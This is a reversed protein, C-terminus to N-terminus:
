YQTIDDIYITFNSSGDGMTGNDMFMVLNYWEVSSSAGSFDYTLVEWQNAVTSTATVEATATTNPWGVADEFKMMFNLGVRPSWVKVRLKGESDLKFKDTVTFKHGGWTQGSNKVLKLVKDSSNGSTDPNDIIEQAGGDFGSLSGADEFDAIVSSGTSSYQTIDDIYITFNSSGDGMTGNDMFMVLNYWEVSSSAGSFDYTLVEWQNAVTSTATVEATATTNPWGVADEFKMMFNLGVRPSWVKVRLKGESDLKFKDTVTFKHGGWTQGSNKVLKLVKDSSNGSTDPNDIIEQAGGDFGSLSGADEFSSILTGPTVTSSGSIFLEIDDLHYTGTDQKGGDIFFVLKKFDATGDWAGGPNPWAQATVTSFDFILTNWGKSSFNQKLEIYENDDSQELKMMLEHTDATPNYIKVSYANNGGQVIKIPNDLILEATEWDNGGNTVKGTNNSSNDPDKSIEFSAGGVGSFPEEKDFYIPLGVPNDKWFYINDLFVDAQAWQDVGEFKFQFLDGLTIGQSTWETLPIDLSTWEDKKLEKVVAVERPNADGPERILFTKLQNLNATWADIHLYEMSSMDTKAYQVGQYSIKSYHTIKDGNLDLENYGSGQWMQGWDPNMNVDAVSTYADSFISVVTSSQRSPPTPASATPALIATVEFEQSYETTAIAAGRAVVKVTYTGAEKYTFSATEGINATVPDAGAEGSIFDFVTAWDATATVNVKKSVNTDNEITVQLNEPANFSVILSVDATTTLNNLGTATVKITHNGEKFTHKVNGGSKISSSVPSGDGYDIVFSIAGEGTPTITVLGTNDQTIDFSASVNSPPAINKAFENNDSFDEDCGVLFFIIFISSLIKYINKMNM